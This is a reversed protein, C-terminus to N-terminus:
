FRVRLGTTMQLGGLAIEVPTDGANFSATGRVYRLLVGLGIRDLTDFRELGPLRNLVFTDIDVGANWGFITSSQTTVTHNDFVIEDFPFGVEIHEVASILDQKANIISPGSSVSIILWDTLASVWQAGTHIGVEQRKLGGAEGSSSRPLDFFFPHPVESTIQARNVSQYSAVDLAFALNRWFRISLGGDIIGGSSIEYDTHFNGQESFM